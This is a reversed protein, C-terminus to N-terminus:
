KDQIRNNVAEINKTAILNVYPYNKRLNEKLLQNNEKDYSYLTYGYSVLLEYLEKCSFGANQANEDTFEVLLIPANSSSLFEKAGQLMPIEWGEIDIKILSIKTKDLGLNRVFDDLTITKVEEVELLEGASPKALSNWADYGNSAIQLEAFGSKNSLAVNEPVINTFQNLGINEKLRQFTISCPEFAIVKGKEGLISSVVLSFLGINAGIDFFFDGKKLFKKVFAIEEEEFGELFIIKALRSDLYCNIRIDHIKKILKKVKLFHLIGWLKYKVRKNIPAKTVM